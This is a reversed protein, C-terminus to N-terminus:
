VRCNLNRRAEQMTASQPVRRCSKRGCPARRASCRPGTGACHRAARPERHPPPFAAPALGCPASECSAAAPSLGRAAGGGGAPGAAAAAGGGGTAGGPAPGARARPREGGGPVRAPRPRRAGRAPARPAYTVTPPPAPPAATLFFAGPRPPPGAPLLSPFPFSPCPLAAAGARKGGGGWGGRVARVQLHGAQDLRRGWAGRIAAARGRLRLGRGGSGRGGRTVGRGRGGRAVGRGRGGRGGNDGAGGGGGGNSNIGCLPPLAPVEPLPDKRSRPAPRPRPEAGRGLPPERQGLPVPARSRAPPPAAGTSGERPRLSLAARARGRPAVPLAGPAAGREPTPGPEGAPLPRRHSLIKELVFGCPVAVHRRRPAPASRSLPAAFAWGLLQCQALRHQALPTLFMADKHQLTDRLASMGSGEPRLGTHGLFARSSRPAQAPHHDWWGPRNRSETIFGPQSVATQKFWM